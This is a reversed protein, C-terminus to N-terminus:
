AIPPGRNHLQARHSSGPGGCWTEDLRHGAVAAALELELVPDLWPSPSSAARPRPSLEDGRLEETSDKGDEADDAEGRLPLELPLEAPSGQGAPGEHVGQEAVQPDTVSAPRAWGGLGLAPLTLGVVLWLRLM